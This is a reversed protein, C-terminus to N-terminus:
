IDIEAEDGQEDLEVMTKRYDEPTIGSEWATNERQRNREVIERRQEEITLMQQFNTTRQRDRQELSAIRQREANLQETAEHEQVALRRIAEVDMPYATTAQPSTQGAVRKHEAVVSCVKDDATLHGYVRKIMEDDAHGTMDCLKNPLYGERLKNTIFTHRAYHNSIIDCLRGTREVKTGAIDKCYSEIQTLGAKLFISKLANNYASERITNFSFGSEYRRQLELIDDTVIIVALIKEKHTKIIYTM